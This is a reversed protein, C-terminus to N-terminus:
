SGFSLGPGRRSRALHLRISSSLHCLCLRLPTERPGPSRCPSICTRTRHINVWIMNAVITQLRVRHGRNLSEIRDCACWPTGNRRHLLFAPWHSLREFYAQVAPLHHWPCLPM